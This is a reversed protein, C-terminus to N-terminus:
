KLFVLKKDTWNLQGTLKLGIKFTFLIQSTSLSNKFNLLSFNNIEEIEKKAKAIRNLLFEVREADKKIHPMAKKLTNYRKM